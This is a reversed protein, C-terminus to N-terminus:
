RDTPSSADAAAPVDRARHKYLCEGGDLRELIFKGRLPNPPIIDRPVAQDIVTRSSAWVDEDLSARKKAWIDRELEDGVAFHPPPDPRRLTWPRPEPGKHGTLKEELRQAAELASGALGLVILFPWM